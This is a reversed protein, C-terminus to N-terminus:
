IWILLDRKLIFLNLPLWHLILLLYERISGISFSYLGSYFKGHQRYSYLYLSYGARFFSMIILSIILIKRWSILSSLLIVERFLNLSPPAAMNSARLLFWWFRISPILNILGKNIFLRRSIVREYSINALCFIGSSCLGHAVMIGLAGIIGWYNITIIGGIVLRIHAVSSYAILSKIDRQRLCVLSILCGGIIRILIFYRNISLIGQFLIILRIIGYGGLKLIVGALIISGRIPAEVHAKPLWLHFLYIPFKVLFVINFRLYLYINNYRLLNLLCFRLTNRMNYIYFIGVLLPLSALLTYFLLYLGAQIREPQYGWGLILLLTPILSIEFFLYFIFLNLRSFTLILVLLIINILILFLYKNYTNKVKLRALLMLSCIWIRLIILLISLLDIGIFFRINSYFDLWNFMLVIIFITYFYVLQNLWYIKFNLPIIFLVIIIIKIM